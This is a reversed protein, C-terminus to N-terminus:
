AKKDVAKKVKKLTKKESPKRGREPSSEKRQGLSLGDLIDCGGSQTLM